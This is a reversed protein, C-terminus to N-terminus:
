LPLNHSQAALTSQAIVVPAVVVSVVVVSVVAVPAVVVSVVVAPVVVVPAVVVPAIVVLMVVVSVVVVLAVVVWVDVVTASTTRAHLDIGGVALGRGVAVRRPDAGPAGLLDVALASDHRRSVVAREACNVIAPQAIPGGVDVTCRGGAYAAV